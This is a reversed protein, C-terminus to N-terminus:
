TLQKALIRPPGNEGRKLTSLTEWSTDRHDLEQSVRSAVTLLPSCRLESYKRRQGDPRTGVIM